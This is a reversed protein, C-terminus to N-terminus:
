TKGSLEICQYTYRTNENTRPVENGGAEPREAIVLKLAEAALASLSVGREKAVRRMELTLAEDLDLKIRRRM